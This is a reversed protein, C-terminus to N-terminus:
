PSLREIVWGDEGEHMLEPNLVEDPEKKRFRLRDHIRTTQGQWFEIINPKILYGGWFDPKPIVKENEYKKEVELFKNVLYERSPIVTSQNSIIAGLQSSRPRANFYDTNEKESLYCVKGEIRVSRNLPEWHICVSCLPNVMLEQGKRSELNTFIKFGEKGFGKLLVMRVSPQGSRSATALAIANPEKIDPHKCAEQFWSGFQSIPDRSVLDKIDFTDCDDRYQKRMGQINGDMEM